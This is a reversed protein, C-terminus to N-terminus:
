HGTMSRVSVACARCYLWIKSPIAAVTTPVLLLHEALSNRSSSRLRNAAFDHDGGMRGFNMHSAVVANRFTIDNDNKSAMCHRKLTAVVILGDIPGLDFALGILNRVPKAYLAM